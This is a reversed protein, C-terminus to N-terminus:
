AGAFGREGEVDDKGLSLAAVELAEIGVGAGHHLRRRHRIHVCHPADRRCDGDLLARAAAAHSRGHRCHGLNVM